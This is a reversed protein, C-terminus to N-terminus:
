IAAAAHLTVEIGDPPRIARRYQKTRCTLILGEGPRLADNIQSIAQGRVQEPIEDLGDLVPLILGSALLWAAQTRETGTLPSGALGPHDILLQATLWDRLNQEVPNWSAISALFPVPGGVARRALFDLVLRVMLMTKGAGPEGLVVLRGTPVRALIDALEGGKGSLESPGVAWVRPGLPATWGAGNSALNVLSEWPSSLSADAAHWSVPLPYPDNLRRIAAEDVWKKGISEALQDAVQVLSLITAPQASRKPGRYAAWALWAALLGFSTPVIVGVVDADHHSRM